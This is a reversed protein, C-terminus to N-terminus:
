REKKRPAKGALDNVAQMIRDIGKEDLGGEPFAFNSVVKHKVYLVVTVDAKPSIDYGKPGGEPYCTIVVNKLLKARAQLRDLLAAHASAEEVLRDADDIKPETASSRAGPSLFVVFSKLYGEQDKAVVEDLRGLLTNLAQDKGKATERAFVMVVPHLKYECVLCHYRGAGVMGNVNYPHFSTTLLAGPQPGSKLTAGGEQAFVVGVLVLFGLCSLHRRM